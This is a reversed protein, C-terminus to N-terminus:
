ILLKDKESDLAVIIKQDDGINIVPGVILSCIDSLFCNENRLSSNAEILQLYIQKNHLDLQM